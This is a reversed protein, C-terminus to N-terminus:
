FALGLGLDFRNRSSDEKFRQYDTKIVVNPNLNFNFGYTWVAETPLTDVGLGLPVEAYDSATNFREYRVFPALAYTGSQWVKYAAQTYWGYFEKPVPTPNGIFTINLDKTDSITGKAYM